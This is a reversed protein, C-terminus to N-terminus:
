RRKRGRPRPPRPGTSPRVPIAPGRSVEFGGSTGLLERSATEARRARLFWWRAMAGLVLTGAVVSTLAQEVPLTALQVLGFLPGLLWAVRWFRQQRQAMGIAIPALARSPAARGRSVSRLVARRDGNALATFRRQVERRDLDGM